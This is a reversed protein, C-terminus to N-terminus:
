PTEQFITTIPPMFAVAFHMTGISSHNPPLVRRRMRLANDYLQLADDHRRLKTYVDALVVMSDAATSCTLARSFQSFCM